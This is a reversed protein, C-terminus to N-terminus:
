GDGGGDENGRDERVHGHMVGQVALGREVSLARGVESGAEDCVAGSAEVELLM